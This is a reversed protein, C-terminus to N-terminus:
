SKEEPFKGMNKQPVIYTDGYGVDKVWKEILADESRIWRLLEVRNENLWCLYYFDCDGAKHTRKFVMLDKHRGRTTKVDVRYGNPTILDWKPGGHKNVTLDPYLNLIKAVGIEGLAGEISILEGDRPSLKMDEVGNDANAKFRHLGIHTGVRVESDSLVTILKLPRMARGGM